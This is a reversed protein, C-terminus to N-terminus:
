LGSLGVTGFCLLCAISLLCYAHAVQPVLDMPRRWDVGCGVDYAARCVSKCWAWVWWTEQVTHWVHDVPRDLRTCVHGRQLYVCRYNMVICKCSSFSTFILQRVDQGACRVTHVLTFTYSLVPHTLTHHLFAQCALSANHYFKVVLLGNHWRPM